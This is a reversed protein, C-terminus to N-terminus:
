EGYGWPNEAEWEPPLSPLHDDHPGPGITEILEDYTVGETHLSNFLWSEEYKTKKIPSFYIVEFKGEPDIIYDVYIGESLWILSRDYYGGGWTIHDPEGYLAVMDTIYDPIDPTAGVIVKLASLKGDTFCATFAFVDGSEHNAFKHAAYIKREFYHSYSEYVDEYTSVGIRLDRWSPGRKTSTIASCDLYFPLLIYNTGSVSQSKATQTLENTSSFSSCATLAAFFVLITSILARSVMPIISKGKTKM